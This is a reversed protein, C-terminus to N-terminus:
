TLASERVPRPTAQPGSYALDRASPRPRRGTSALVGLAPPSGSHEGASRITDKPRASAEKM